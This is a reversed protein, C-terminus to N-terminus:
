RPSLKRVYTYVWVDVDGARRYCRTYLHREAPVSPTDDFVSAYREPVDVVSLHGPGGRVVAPIPQRRGDVPGGLYEAIPELSM